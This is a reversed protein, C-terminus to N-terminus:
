DVVAYVGTGKPVGLDIANDSQWNHPAVEWSHTGQGPTGILAGKRALPYGPKYAGDRDTALDKRRQGARAKHQDTLPRLGRIYEQAHMTAGGDITNKLFGTVYWGVWKYANRTARGYLGDAALHDADEHIDAHRELHKNLAEQLEKVDEGEM